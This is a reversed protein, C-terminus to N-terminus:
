WNWKDKFYTPMSLALWKALLEAIFIGSFVFDGIMIYQAQENSEKTPDYLGLFICNILIVGIIVRDFWPNSVLSYAAEDLRM